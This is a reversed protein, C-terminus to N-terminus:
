VRRSHLSYIIVGIGVAECVHSVTVTLVFAGTGPETYRAVIWPIIIIELLTPFVTILLMGIALLLMPRSDNRQYGQYARGSIALGLVLVVVGTAFPMADWGPPILKPQIM